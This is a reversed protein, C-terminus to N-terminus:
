GGHIEARSPVQREKSSMERVVLLRQKLAKLPKGASLLFRSLGRFILIACTKRFSQGILLYAKKVDYATVSYDSAAM